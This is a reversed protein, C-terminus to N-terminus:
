RCTGDEYVVYGARKMKTFYTGSFPYVGNRTLTRQYGACAGSRRVYTGRKSGEDCGTAHVIQSDRVSTQGYWRAWMLCESSASASGGYGVFLSAVIAIIVVFRM